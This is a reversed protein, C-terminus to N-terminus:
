KLKKLGESFYSKPLEEFYANVHTIVDEKSTFWQGSLLKKLKPFLFFDSLALDLSHPRHDVMVFKLEEIKVM